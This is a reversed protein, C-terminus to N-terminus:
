TMTQDNEEWTKEWTSEHVSNNYIREDKLCMNFYVKLNITSNGTQNNEFEKHVLNGKDLNWLALTM